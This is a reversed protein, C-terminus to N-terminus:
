GHRAEQRQRNRDEIESDTQLKGPPFVIETHCKQCLGIRTGEDDEDVVALPRPHPCTEPDALGTPQTDKRMYALLEAPKPAKDPHEGAWSGIARIVKEPLYGAFHKAQHALLAPDNWPKVSGYFSMIEKAIREMQDREM